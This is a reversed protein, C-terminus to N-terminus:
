GMKESSCRRGSAAARPARRRSTRRRRRPGGAPLLASSSRRRRRLRRPETSRSPSTPLQRPRPRPPTPPPRRLSKAWPPRPPTLPQPAPRSINKKLNNIPFLSFSFSFLSSYFVDLDFFIKKQPRRRRRRRRVDDCAVVASGMKSLKARSAKGEGGWFYEGNVVLVGLIFCRRLMPSSSLPRRRSHPLVFVSHSSFRATTTTSPPLCFVVCFINGMAETM